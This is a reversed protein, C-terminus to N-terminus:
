TRSHFTKLPHNVGLTAAEFIQWGGRSGDIETGASTAPDFGDLGFLQSQCQNLQSGTASSKFIPEIM